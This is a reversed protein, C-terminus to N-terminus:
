NIAVTHQVRSQMYSSIELSVKDADTIIVLQNGATTL